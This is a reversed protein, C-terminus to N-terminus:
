KLILKYLNYYNINIKFLKKLFGIKWSCNCFDIYMEKPHIVYYILKKPNAFKGKITELYTINAFLNVDKLTPTIGRDKRRNESTGGDGCRHNAGRHTDDRQGRQSIIDYRQRM